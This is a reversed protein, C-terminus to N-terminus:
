AYDQAIVGSGVAIGTPSNACPPSDAITHDSRSRLPTHLTANFLKWIQPNGQEGAEVFGRHERTTSQESEM